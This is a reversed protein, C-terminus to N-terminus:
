VGLEYFLNCIVEKLIAGATLPAVKGPLSLAWIVKLGLRQAVEFDVGAPTAIPHPPKTSFYQFNDNIIIVISVIIM